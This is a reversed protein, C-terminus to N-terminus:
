EGTASPMGQEVKWMVQPKSEGQYFLKGYLTQSGRSAPVQVEFRLSGAAESVGSLTKGELELLVQSPDLAVAEYKLNQATVVVTVTGGALGVRASQPRMALDPSQMQVSIREIQQGSQANRVELTHEGLSTVTATLGEQRAGDVWVEVPVEPSLLELQARGWAMFQGPATRTLGTTRAEISRFRIVQSARGQLGLGDRSSVRAAYRGPPLTDLVFSRTGRVRERRVIERFERGPQTKEDIQALELQYETVGPVADWELSRPAPQGQIVVYLPDPASQWRPPPPLKRAPIPAKGKEALTGSDGPVFVQKGAARMTAEGEYVSLRSTAIEDVELNLDQAAVQINAGPTIVELGPGARRKSPAKAVPPKPTPGAGPVTATSAVVVETKNANEGRLAALGGRLAGGKLEVQRSMRQGAGRSAGYIVLTSNELLMVESQDQFTVETVAGTRTDVRYQRYLEQGVRSIMPEQQPPTTQVQPRVLTLVADPKPKGPNIRLKMGPVLAHPPAGVLQPNLEHLLDLTLRGELKRIVGQCTDGTVVTYEDGTPPQAWVPLASLALLAVAWVGPARSARRRTLLPRIITTERSSLCENRGSPFSM